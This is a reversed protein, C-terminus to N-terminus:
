RSFAKGQVAALFWKQKDADLGEVSALIRERSSPRSIYLDALVKAGAFTFAMARMEQQHFDKLGDDLVFFFDEVFRFRQTSIWMERMGTQYSRLLSANYGAFDGDLFALVADVYWAFSSAPTALTAEASGQRCASVLADGRTSQVGLRFRADDYCDRLYRFQAVSSLGPLRQGDITAEVRRDLDQTDLFVWNGEQFVVFASAALLTLGFIGAGIRRVTEM